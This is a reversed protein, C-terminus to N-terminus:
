RKQKMERLRGNLQEMAGWVKGYRTVLPPALAAEWGGGGSGQRGRAQGNSGGAVAAAALGCARAYPLLESRLLVGRAESLLDGLKAMYIQDQEHQEGQQKDEQETEDAAQNPEVAPDAAQGESVGQQPKERLRLQEAEEKLMFGVDAVKCLSVALDCLDQVVAVQACGEAGAGTALAAEGNAGKAVTERVPPGASVVERRIELAAEYQEKAEALRGSMFLLDGQKNHTVSIASDAERSRGRWHALCILSAAYYRLAAAPDGLRRYCDAKCGLITGLRIATESSAKAAAALHPRLVQDEDLTTPHSAAADAAAVAPVLSAAATATSAAVDATNTTTIQYAPESPPTGPAAPDKPPAVLADTCLDLRALGAEPNGGALSQLALQLLLSPLDLNSESTGSGAPAKGASTVPCSAPKASTSAAIAAPCIGPPPAAASPKSMLKAHGLLIKNITSALSTDPKTSDIDAGCVPCDRFRRVCFACFTHRCGSTVVPDHLLGRCLVCHYPSLEDKGAGQGGFGLPCTAM